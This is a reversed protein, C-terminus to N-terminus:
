LNYKEDRFNRVSDLLKLNGNRKGYESLIVARTKWMVQAPWCWIIQLVHQIWADADGLNADM